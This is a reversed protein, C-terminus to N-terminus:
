VVELRMLALSEETPIRQAKLIVRVVQEQRKELTFRRPEFEFTFRDSAYLESATMIVSVQLPLFARQKM